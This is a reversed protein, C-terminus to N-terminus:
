SAKDGSAARDIFLSGRTVVREGVKLGDVVQVLGGGSLGLTVGRSAITGDPREVWVRARAGEYVIASAPIAPASEDRGTLITFTAFMEPRLLGEANDIEARVPLRRTAPDLSAAMYSIKAKFVRDPFGIVSAELEQGLKIRPVESERVNAVLWVTSLDGIIFAPDSGSALYQGLGVKRQVITGAIPARIETEPSMAGNRAFADIEADSKGLIRLRNRVAQLAAEASRQDSQAAIVDNQAQQWDKLAVAKAQFLEQLRAAVTQNLKLLAQNKALANTAAQFDNLASVMDAAELTFLVQNAKVRDGARVMVKTVRGAYPTYVPVNDDENVTIRGEAFGEPRFDRAQVTEIGFSARQQKSPRFVPAAATEGAEPAQGEVGQRQVLLEELRERVPALAPVFWIAAGAGALVLLTVVWGLGGRRRAAARSTLPEKTLPNNTDM